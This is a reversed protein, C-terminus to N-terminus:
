LNLLDKVGIVYSFVLPKLLAEFIVCCFQDRKKERLFQNKVM